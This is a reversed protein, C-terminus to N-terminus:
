CLTDCVDTSRLHRNFISFSSYRVNHRAFPARKWVQSGPQALLPPMDKSVIKYAVNNGSAYHQKHPNEIAWARSKAADYDSTADKSTKFVKKVTKFGNGYFNDEGGVEEDDPVVDVQVVQNNLGDIM